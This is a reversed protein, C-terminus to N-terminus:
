IALPNSRRKRFGYRVNFTRAWVAPYPITAIRERLTEFLPGNMAPGIFSVSQLIRELSPGDVPTEDQLIKDEILRVGTLSALHRIAQSTDRRRRDTIGDVYRQVERIFPTPTLGCTVIVLAGRHVLVRRLQKAVLEADLFHLADAILAGDFAGEEFPLAEAAAHFCRVNANRRLAELRLRDLMQRAPEVATVELGREALPLALHGLGAGLDLWRSGVRSAVQIVSDALATPYPPRADYASAMRNFIWAADDEVQINRRSRGM